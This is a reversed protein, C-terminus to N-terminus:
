RVLNKDEIKDPDVFYLRIDIGNQTAWVAFQAIIHAAFGGTGGCGILLIAVRDPHGIEVKYNKEMTLPSPTVPRPAASNANQLRPILWDITKQCGYLALQSLYNTYPYQFFWNMFAQGKSTPSPSPTNTLSDM